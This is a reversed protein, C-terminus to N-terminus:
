PSPPNLQAGAGIGVVTQSFMRGTAVAGAGLTIAGSSLVIGSFTANAGINTAGTVQWFVNAANAGGILHVSTSSTQGLAGNIQFIWVDSPGGTLTMNTSITAATTWQYLGPVLTTGGLEGSGVSTPSSRGLADAQATALATSASSLLAPTTGIDGTDYAKGAILSSTSFTGSTDLALAYGSYGVSGAAWLGTDGGIWTSAGTSLGSNTLVTFNGATGLLVAAPGAAPTATVQINTTASGMRSGTANISTLDVRYTRTTTEPGFTFTTGTTQSVGNVYWTNTLIGDTALLYNAVTATLVQTAGVLQSAAAGSISVTLPNLLNPTVTVTLSGAGVGLTSFSYTGFTTQGAIIRVSDAAGAVATGNSSLVFTLTYYGNAIAPNTYSASNGSIVYAVAMSSGTAPTLIAAITPSPVAGAPWLAALTLVGTGSVPFVSVTVPTNVGSVVTATNMGSGILTGAANAATVTITWAGTALTPQSVSGGTTVASFSGSGPGTGTITYLSPVMDLTPTLTRANIQNGVLISLGTTATGSLGPWTPFPCASLVLAFLVL